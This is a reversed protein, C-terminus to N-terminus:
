APSLPELLAKGHRAFILYDHEKLPRSFLYGQGFPCSMQRLLLLQQETEIGEAVVTIGLEEALSLTSKVIAYDHRGESMESVFSRDIKLVDVPLQKLYNLSSYGTGYDDIAVTVGLASLQNLAAVALEPNQMLASETIELQLLGPEIGSRQIIRKVVEVFRDHQLQRASVNVSVKSFMLGDSRWRAINACSQEIVWFGIAIIEGSLEAAPIFQDPSILGQTPHNWRLLCECGMHESTDLQMIPQFYLELEDKQLVQSLESELFLQENVANRLGESYFCIALGNQKAQYMATDAGRLLDAISEGDQPFMAVGISTSTVVARGGVQFPANLSAALKGAVSEIMDQDPNNEILLTFEDGGLRALTDSERVVRRFRKAVEALLQDGVDHGLSDNVQKFRNLDMFLLAARNGNRQALRLAHQARDIFLHRNPLGTLADYFAFSELKQNLDQLETTRADVLQQLHAQRSYASLVIFVALMGLLVETVLFSLSEDVRLATVREDPIHLIFTWLHNAFQLDFVHSLGAGALRADHIGLDGFVQDSPDGNEYIYLELFNILEHSLSQQIIQSVLFVGVAFGRLAHHGEMSTDGAQVSTFVPSFILFGPEKKESQVLQIIDTATAVRSNKALLMSQKRAESSFVNFGLAAQNADFPEILEVIVLPDDPTLPEGKVRFQPNVNQRAYQEFEALQDQRVLPNWSLAKIGPLNETLGSVMEAFEAKGPPIPQSLQQELHDLTSLYVGMRQKLNNETAKAKLDFINETNVVVVDEIYQQAVQLMVVLGILPAALSKILVVRHASDPQSQFLSLLLPCVLIVGLFDGVWWVLVNNWQLLSFDSGANAVLLALNGILASILCCALAILIFLAIQGSAPADLIQIGRWNLLRSNVWAQLTSGAAIVASLILMAPYVEGQHWIQTSSNFIVSGLFIAPLFRNGFLQMGALAVGASPWLSVIQAQPSFISFLYALGVYLGFLIVYVGKGSARMKADLPEVSSWVAM